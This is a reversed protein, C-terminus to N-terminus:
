TIKKWWVKFTPLLTILLDEDPMNIFVSKLLWLAPSSYFPFSNQIISSSISIMYHWDFHIMVIVIVVNSLNRVQRNRKPKSYINTFFMKARVLDLRIVLYQNNKLTRCCMKGRQIWKKFFIVFFKLYNSNSSHCSKSGFILGSHKLLWM